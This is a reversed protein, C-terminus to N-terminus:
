LTKILLYVSLLSMITSFTQTGIVGTGLTKQKLPPVNIIDNPQIYFVESNFVSMQTLDVHFKKVGDIEM